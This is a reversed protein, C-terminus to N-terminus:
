QTIQTGTQGEAPIRIGFGNAAEEITRRIHQRVAKQLDDQPEKYDVIGAAGAFAAAADEHSIAGKNLMMRVISNFLIGYARSTALARVASQYAVNALTKEDSSM